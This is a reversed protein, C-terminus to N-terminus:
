PKVQLDHLPYLVHLFGVFPKRWLDEMDEIAEIGKM